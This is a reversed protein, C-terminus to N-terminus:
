IMEYIAERLVLLKDRLGQVEAEILNDHQGDGGSSPSIWGRGVARGRRLSFVISYVIALRLVALTEIRRSGSTPGV